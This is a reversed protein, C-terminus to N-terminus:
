LNDFIYQHPRRDFRGSSESFRYAVDASRVAEVVHSPIMVLALLEGRGRLLEDGSGESYTAPLEDKFAALLVDNVQVM